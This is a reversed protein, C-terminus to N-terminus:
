SDLPLGSFWRVGKHAPGGDESGGWIFGPHDISAYDDERDTDELDPDGDMADLISLLREIEDEVARRVEDSQPLRNEAASM